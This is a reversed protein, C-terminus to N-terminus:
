SLSPSGKPCSGYTSGAHRILLVDCSRVEITRSMLRAMTAAAVMRIDQYIDDM